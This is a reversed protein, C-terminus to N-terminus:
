STHLPKYVNKNRYEAVIKNEADIYVKEHGNSYNKLKAKLSVRMLLDELKIKSTRIYIFDNKRKELKNWKIVKRNEVETLDLKKTTFVMIYVSFFIEYEIMKGTLHYKELRDIDADKSM